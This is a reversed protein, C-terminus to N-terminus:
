VVSKRDKESAVTLTAPGDFPICSLNLGSGSPTIYVGDNAPSNVQLDLAIVCNTIQLNITHGLSADASVANGSYGSLVTTKFQLGDIRIFSGIITLCPAATSEIRYRDTRYTGDHRHDNPTHIYVYRTADGSWHQSLAFAVDAPGDSDVICEEIRNTSLLNSFRATQWEALSAYARNAGTLAATTGDGGPTSGPNVYRVVTTPM